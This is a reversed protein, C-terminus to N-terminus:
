VAVRRIARVNFSNGKQKGSPPDQNGTDFFNVWANTSSGQTSTWYFQNSGTIFEQAGSTRFATASTQAPNSTSYNSARAPVANANIGSNTVNDTTTTKLNYYCVELENKAPLYWDSFGGITLGECFQAAPHDSDNMSASNSPGDIVSTAGADDTNSTKFQKVTGEGSSKPAVVLNYDAVGNGATSIQGAFFGGGFADGIALAPTVSNSAASLVSPGYSNNAFV